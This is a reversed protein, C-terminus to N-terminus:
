NRHSSCEGVQGAEKRAQGIKRRRSNQNIEGILFGRVTKGETSVLLLGSLYYVAEGHCCLLLLGLVQGELILSLFGGGRL